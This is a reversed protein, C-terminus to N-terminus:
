AAQLRNTWMECSECTYIYIVRWRKWIAELLLAHLEDLLRVIAAHLAQSEDLVRIAVPNLNEIGIGHRVLASGYETKIEKACKNKLGIKLCKNIRTKQLPM